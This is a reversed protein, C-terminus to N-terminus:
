STDRAGSPFVPSFRTKGADSAVSGQGGHMTMITRVISLGLGSSQSSGRRSVDARYFRDFLRPLQLAPIVEGDNEIRLTM